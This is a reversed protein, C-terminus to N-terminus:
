RRDHPFREVVDGMVQTHTACVKDSLDLAVPLLALSQGVCNPDVDDLEVSRPYLQLWTLPRQLRLYVSAVRLPADCAHPARCRKQTRVSCPKTWAADIRVISSAAIRFRALSSQAASPM